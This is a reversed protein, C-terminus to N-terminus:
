AGQGRSPDEEPAPSPSEGPAGPVPPPAQPFPPMPPPVPPPERRAPPPPERRAILVGALGGIAGLGAGLVVALMMRVLIWGGGGDAEFAGWRELQEITDADGYERVMERWSEVWPGSVAKVFLDLITDGVGAIAGAIAGVLAGREIAPFGVSRAFMAGAVAGAVAYNLCCLCCCPPVVSLVAGVLGGVLVPVTYSRESDKM